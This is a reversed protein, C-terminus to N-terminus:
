DDGDGAGNRFPNLDGIWQRMGTVARGLAGVPDLDGVLLPPRYPQGGTLLALARATADRLEVRPVILDVHGHRFNSESLGFDDPLSERTTQKVVRPGSFSLLAGPEAIIIDGLAAFSAAVGGTTPHVLVSIFPRGTERLEDVAAVTKGMQMLALVGEQMRAGGSAAVSVLPRGQAIALDAARVFKEGVVSGMSGGLFAFDMVALATPTGGISCSGVIAADRLGTSREAARLRDPYPKSDAFELPDSSHLGRAIEIFTGEDALQLIRERATVPFHHGCNTCVRLNAVMEDERYHSNCVPCTNRTLPAREPRGGDDSRSVDVSINEAM